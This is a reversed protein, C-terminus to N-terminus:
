AWLDNLALGIVTGSIFPLILDVMDSSASFDANLYPSLVNSDMYSGNAIGMMKFEKNKDGQPFGLDALEKQWNEHLSNNLNGGFDVYNVLMQRAANCHALREAFELYTGSNTKKNVFYGITKQNELFSITGYLAYLVGLPINAGLHPTDYSVFHSTEHSQNNNEMTRLAYRVVLGGMSQGLIVNSASSRNSHKQQNVWDIVKMLTYANAQIYNESDVWDVYIIDFMSTLTVNGTQSQANTIIDRFKGFDTYGREHDVTRPDFGEVIILPNRIAGDRSKVFIEAQTQVGNYANGTETRVPENYITRTYLPIRVEIKSHSVLQTGNSLTVRLKMEKAGSSSFSVSTTGGISIQRYSGTGPDIEIKQYPVNSLWCNRDLKFTFTQGTCISDHACFGIVYKNEYPNQWIGNKINDYVKGNEYRILGGTLADARIASYQYAIASISVTNQNGFGYQQTLIDEVEGFPKIGVASSRITRLLLEYTQRDVYNNNMLQTGTFRDLNVLEFAYDKLLSNPVKSKDLTQFIGDLYNRVEQNEEVNQGFSLGLICFFSLFLLIIKQVNKKM